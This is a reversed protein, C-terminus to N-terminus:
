LLMAFPTGKFSSARACRHIWSVWTDPPKQARSPTCLFALYLVNVGLGWLLSTNLDWETALYSNNPWKAERNGYRHFQSSTKFGMHSTPLSVLLVSDLPM